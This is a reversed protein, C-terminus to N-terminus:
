DFGEFRFAPGDFRLPYFPQVFEDMRIPHLEVDANDALLTSTTATLIRRVDAVDKAFLEIRQLAPANLRGYGALESALATYGLRLTKLRPLFVCVRKDLLIHANVRCHSSFELHELNTFCESRFLLAQITGTLEAHPPESEVGVFASLRFRKLQGPPLHSLGRIGRQRPGFFGESTETGDWQFIDYRELSEGFEFDAMYPRAFLARWTMLRM